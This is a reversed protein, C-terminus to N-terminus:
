YPNPRAVDAPSSTCLTGNNNLYLHREWLCNYPRTGVARVNLQITWKHKLPLKQFPHKRESVSGGRGGGM